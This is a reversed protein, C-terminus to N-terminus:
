YNIHRHDILYVTCCQCDAMAYDGRPCCYDATHFWVEQGCFPCTPGKNEHEILLRVLKKAQTYKLKDTLVIYYNNLYKFTWQKKHESYFPPTNFDVIKLELKKIIRKM